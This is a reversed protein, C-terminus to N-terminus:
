SFAISGTDRNELNLSSIVKNRLLLSSYREFDLEDYELTYYMDNLVAESEDM